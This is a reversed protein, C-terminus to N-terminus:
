AGFYEKAAQELEARFRPVAIAILARARERLTKGKLHAVGYETVVYDVDNRLTTIAAGEAITAVIRSSSGKRATSPIAIISKGGESWNAGRVYDVQGGTGSFQKRGITESVVQGMLDIEICSNISILKDNQAIIRPDNVYDVPYLEVMPNKHVFQYLKESGMLFTALMKGPHLTKKEGNIVGSEILSIVGDSFMETHIGLDKKDKLFHLLADPIAGIGLQLTSGDEILSACHRAIAEETEGLPAPAITNLPYNAEVIASLKSVHILNDGGVFPMQENLEAIVIPALEAAPKTYDCSIGFSCYGEENPKSLQVMAVDIPLSGNRMLKPVEYFFLPIFDARHEQVAKRSNAGVFNGVHRFNKEYEPQMYLGEDLTLMHFLEVDRYAEANDTLAKMCLKPVAAAHGVAIRQGSKILKVAKDASSLREAYIKKWEANDSQKASNKSANLIRRAEDMLDDNVKTNLIVDISKNDFAVRLMSQVVKEVTDYASPCFRCAGEFSVTVKDGEVGLLKLDGGHKRLLPSVRERLVLDVEKMTLTKIM